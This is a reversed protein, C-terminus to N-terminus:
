TSRSSRVRKAAPVSPNGLEQTVKQFRKKAQKTAKGSAATGTLEAEHDATNLLQPVGRAIKHLDATTFMQRHIVLETRKCKGDSRTSSEPDVMDLTIVKYHKKHIQGARERRTYWRIHCNPISWGIIGEFRTRTADELLARFGKIVNAHCVVLVRLGSATEALQELFARLRLCLDAFSEGAGGGKRVWWKALGRTYEEYEELDDVPKEMGKFSGSNMERILMDTTFNAEAINMEASTEIARIYESCYMKDFTGVESALLLGARRAQNRGKDTLRFDNTHRGV